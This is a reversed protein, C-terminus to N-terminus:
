HKRGSGWWHRRVRSETPVTCVGASCTGATGSSSTQCATGDPYIQVGCGASADCYGAFCPGQDTPCAPPTGARCASSQCTELGNCANGDDCTMPPGAVCANAVCHETGNCADGDSCQADAGCACGRCVGARCVDYPTNASGDNCPTEDGLPSGGAVCTHAVCAQRGACADAPAPCDADANCQGLTGACVGGAQCVDGFTMANGDDCASGARPAPDFVCGAATCSDQTCPNGDSCGTAACVSQAAFVVENSFGSEAGNADYSKLSVYTDSFQEIGALTWHAVGNPDTAPLHNIDDRYDVYGRPSSALYVHFGVVRVDAPPRFALDM